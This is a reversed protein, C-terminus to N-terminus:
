RGRVDPAPPLLASLCAGVVDAAGLAGALLRCLIPARLPWAEDPSPASGAAFAPPGDRLAMTAALPAAADAFGIREVAGGAAQLAAQGACGFGVAVLLGAGIEQRLAAAGAALAELAARDCDRGPARGFELELVAAGEALLPTRLRDRAPPAAQRDTLLIVAADGTAWGPPLTILAPLPRAPRPAIWLMQEQPPEPELAPAAHAVTPLLLVLCAPPVRRM